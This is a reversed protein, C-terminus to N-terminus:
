PTRGAEIVENVVADMPEHFAELLAERQEFPMDPAVADILAIIKEFLDAKIEFNKGIVYWYLAEFSDGGGTPPAQKPPFRLVNDNM